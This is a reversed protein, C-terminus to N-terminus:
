LMAQPTECVFPYVVVHLFGRRENKRGLTVVDPNAVVSAVMVGIFVFSKIWNEISFLIEIEAKFLHTKVINWRHNIFNQFDSTLLLDIVHPM